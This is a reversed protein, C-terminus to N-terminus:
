FMASSFYHNGVMVHDDWRNCSGTQSLFNSTGHVHVVLNKQMLVVTVLVSYAQNM